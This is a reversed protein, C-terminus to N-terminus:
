SQGTLTSLVGTVTLVDRVPGHPNTVRYTLGLQTALHYGTVLVRVGTPDLFTVRDLDIVLDVVHDTAIAETIGITLLDSTSLDIEGAVALHLVGDDATHRTIAIAAM